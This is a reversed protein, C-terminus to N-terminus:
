FHNKGLFIKYAENNTENIYTYGLNKLFEQFEETSKEDVQMGVLVRGIDSGHNRYHFLSINWHGMQELFNLLAGPKEPFEFRYIVENKAEPAHGGVLHRLHLKAVENHTLDIPDLSANKLTEMLSDSEDFNQVGIGVFINASSDSSYRYNFETINRKGILGCFDKFAGPKEPITVAFIAEREEGIEARESVFGLRDFNMNAGSATAVFTKSNVNNKKIYSKVGAVALAGAPELITRTDEFVDKIAACIEDNDVIIMEDVYQQCIKFPIEGVQKLAAGEAFLSVADLVIRKNAKLSQTM